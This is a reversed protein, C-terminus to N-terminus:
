LIHNLSNMPCGGVGVRDAAADLHFEACEM